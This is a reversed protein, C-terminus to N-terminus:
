GVSILSINEVSLQFYFGRMQAGNAVRYRGLCVLSPEIVRPLNIKKQKQVATLNTRFGYVQSIHTVLVAPTQNLVNTSFSLNKVHYLFLFCRMVDVNNVQLHGEDM